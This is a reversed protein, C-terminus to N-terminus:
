GKAYNLFKNIKTRNISGGRKFLGDLNKLEPAADFTYEKGNFQKKIAQFDKIINYADSHTTAMTNVRARRKTLNDLLAQLKATEVQLKSKETNANSVKDQAAVIAEQTNANNDSKAQEIIAKQEAIQENIESIKKKSKTASKEAELKKIARRAKNITSANKKATGNNIWDQIRAVEAESQSIIRDHAEIQSNLANKSSTKAAIDSDIDSRVQAARDTRTKFHQAKQRWATFQSDIDAQQQAKWQDLTTKGKTKVLQRGTLDADWRGTEAYLTNKVKGTKTKKPVGLWNTEPGYKLELIRARGTGTQGFPNQNFFHFEDNQDKGWFKGHNSQTVENIKYNHMGEISDIFDQAKGEENAAKFNDVDDGELVLAKRNGAKDTVDVAIKNTQKTSMKASKYVNRGINTAGAAVNLVQLINMYDQYSMKSGGDEPDGDFAKKWSQAIEPSNSLMHAVGPLAAIISVTPKLTKIIKGMKSAAGGGPILGLADMGLNMGFNRWMEGTTVADDAMDTFFNGFTSSLGSIASVATGAGPVFGSIASTLDLIAYGLRAKAKGDWGTAENADSKNDPDIYNNKAKQTKATIGNVDAEEKYQTNVNYPGLVAAGLQAKIVGGQEFQIYTRTNYNTNYQDNIHKFLLDQYAKKIQDNQNAFESIHRRQVFGTTPDYTYVVGRDNLSENILWSGNGLDTFGNKADQFFRQLVIRKNDDTYPTGDRFSQMLQSYANQWTQNDTGLWTGLGEKQADNLDSYYNMFSPTVGEKFQHQSYDIPQYYVGAEPTYENLLKDQWEKLRENKLKLEEDAKKKNIEEQSQALSKNREWKDSTFADVYEGAGFKRLAATLQNVDYKDNTSYENYFTDFDTDFTDDWDNSNSKFDFGKSKLWNKYGPLYKLLLDRRQSFSRAADPDEPNKLDYKEFVDKATLGQGDLYASLGHKSIDWGGTQQEDKKKVPTLGDMVRTFYHHAWEGADADVYREKRKLGYKRPNKVEYQVKASQKGDYLGDASFTKGERVANMTNEMAESLVKLANDDFLGENRAFDLFSNKYDAHAKLIDHEYYENDGYKITKREQTNEAM